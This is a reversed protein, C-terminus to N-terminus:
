CESVVELNISEEYRYEMDTWLVLVRDRIGDATKAIMDVMGPRLCKGREAHSIKYATNSGYFQHDIRLIFGYPSAPNYLEPRTARIRVLDGVNM